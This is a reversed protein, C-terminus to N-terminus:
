FKKTSIVYIRRGFAITSLGSLIVQATFGEKRRKLAVAYKSSSDSVDSIDYTM